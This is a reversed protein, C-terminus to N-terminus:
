KRVPTFSAKVRNTLEFVYSFTTKCIVNSPAFLWPREGTFGARIANSIPRQQMLWCLRSQGHKFAIGGGSCQL